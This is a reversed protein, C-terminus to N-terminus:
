WQVFMPMVVHVWNGGGVPRFVGPSSPGTTELAVQEEELVGLVDLLYRSNFAIKTEEGEVAADLESVNDGMEEARATLTIKGPTLEGGPAIILRIIGGGDRAFVSATRTARLFEPVPILARTNYSQPILQKYNPYTGQLLQSVMELNELRFLIQSRQSNVLVEVPEEQDRLFRDLERLSRAPIIISAEEAVEKALPLQDVALRFGDAAALTLTTGSLHTHVGTLVPRSDETAAAFVVRNIASHLLKPDVQTAIGEEIQPIPPFENASQGKIRAEYRACKLELTQSGPPANLDIRELPLSGVFSSLLGAPIAISGEEGVEAGLWHSIAIELNTAALKLRGQDTALLVFGTIPLTTRTAVARGVIGLGRNLKEQLCAIRM